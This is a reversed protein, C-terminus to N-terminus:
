QRITIEKKKREFASITREGFFSLLQKSREEWEPAYIARGLDFYDNLASKIEFAMQQHTLGSYFPKPPWITVGPGNANAQRVLYMQKKLTFVGCFKYLMM